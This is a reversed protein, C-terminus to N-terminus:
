LQGEVAAARGELDQREVDLQNHWDDANYIALDAVTAYHKGTETQQLHDRLVHLVGRLWEVHDMACSIQFVADDIIRHQENM